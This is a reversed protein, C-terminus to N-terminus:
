LGLREQVNMLDFSFEKKLLNNLKCLPLGVVNFYDGSIGEVLLAGLDQIGYAGAKDMPEGSDIYKKIEEVGLTRFKVKTEEFDAVCKGTETDTIAIGTYVSHERGSLSSLMEFAEEKSSPKGLVKEDLVVVTDAGIILCNKDTLKSVNSVKESALRMVMDFPKEGQVSCEESNDCIIDFSKIFRMLLEKRRPSKSALVIEKMFVRRFVPQALAEREM